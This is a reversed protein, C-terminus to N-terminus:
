VWCIHDLIFDFRIYNLNYKFKQMYSIHILNSTRLLLTSLNPLWWATRDYSCTPNYSGRKGNLPTSKMTYLPAMILDWLSSLSLLFSVKRCFRPHQFGLIQQIHYLAHTTHFTFYRIWIVLIIKIMYILYKVKWVIWAKYWMCCIRSNWCRPNQLFTLKRRESEEEHSRMTAGRCAM